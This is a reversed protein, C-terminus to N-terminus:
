LWVAGSVSDALVNAPKIDKHILGQQHLKGLAAALGVALRIFRNLEMPQGMLRDLPEGGVDELVLVPRGDRRVLTLPRAAWHPDLEGRLSYEHELRGLIAPVPHESTPVVLLINPVEREDRRGRSFAFEEDQRLTQFVYRSLEIVIGEPQVM